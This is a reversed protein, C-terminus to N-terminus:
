HVKDSKKESPIFHQHEYTEGKKESSDEAKTSTKTTFQGKEFSDQFEKIFGMIQSSIKGLFEAAEPVRKPGIVILAVLFVILLEGFSM